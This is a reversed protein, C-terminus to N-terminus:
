DQTRSFGTGIIGIPDSNHLKFFFFFFFFFFCNFFVCNKKVLQLNDSIPHVLHHQPYYFGLHNMHVSGDTM